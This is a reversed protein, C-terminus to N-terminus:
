SLVGSQVMIFLFINSAMATSRMPVTPQKLSRSV